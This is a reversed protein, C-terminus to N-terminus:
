DYAEKRHRVRVVDVVRNQDDVSYIVRYVGCRTRWLDQPGKLKLCGPPRPDATLSTIRSYIRRVDPAKLSELEKRASKAFTVRYEPM